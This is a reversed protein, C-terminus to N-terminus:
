DVLVRVRHWSSNAYGKTNWVTGPNEPQCAGSSDWCRAVIEADGPTLDLSTSWHTWAWRSAPESLDAQTWTTGGDGSVDVRTIRRGGGSLAYGTVPAQGGPVRDGERPSTIACNLTVESLPFGRGPEPDEGPPLIRYAVQQFHNTSPELQATISRVWKVSRAGIHGPVVVRVPGGHVQPLPAGDMALALLVEEGLAVDVGISGGFPQPPDALDSVDPAEFAIHAAEPRLGADQLLDALRVGTWTATSTAGADWPAEGPIDRVTLLGSRRNGACQLTATVTHQPRARLDDLSLELPREVLGEIRVTWSEDLDPVPGHNRVYFADVPTLPADLAALPTEANFPEREHVVMDDRKAWM